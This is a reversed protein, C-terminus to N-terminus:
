CHGGSKIVKKQSKFIKEINSKTACGAIILILSTLTENKQSRFTENKRKREFYFRINTKEPLNKYKFNAYFM